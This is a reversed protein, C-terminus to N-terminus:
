VGVITPLTLHTYSVTNTSNEGGNLGINVLNHLQALMADAVPDGPAAKFDALNSQGLVCYVAMKTVVFADWDSLGMSTYPYGNKIVRWVAPNNYAEDINVQYGGTTEVGNLDHNLCYAPYFAGNYEHGVISCTVYTYIGKSANYHQLHKPADGVKQIYAESIKTSAYIFNFCSSFLIMFLFLIAGIKKTKKSM